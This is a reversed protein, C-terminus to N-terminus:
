LPCSDRTQTRTRVQERVSPHYHEELQILIPVAGSKAVKDTAEGDHSSINTLVWLTEFVVKWCRHRLLQTFVGDPDCLGTSVILPIPPDTEVSVLKRIKCVSSRVDEDSLTHHSRLIEGLKPIDGAVPPPPPPLNQQQQQQQQQTNGNNNDDDGGGNLIVNSNNRRRKSLYDDKKAKRL